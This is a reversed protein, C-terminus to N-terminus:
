GWWTSSPDMEALVCSLLTDRLQASAQGQELSELCKPFHAGSHFRATIRELLAELLAPPTPVGRHPRLRM